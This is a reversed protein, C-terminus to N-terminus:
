SDRHGPTGYRQLLMPWVDATRYVYRAERKRPRPVPECCDTHTKRYRGLCTRIVSEPQHLREALEKVTALTPLPSSNGHGQSHEPIPTPAKTTGAAAKVDEAHSEALEAAARFYAIDKKWDALDYPVYGGHRLIMPLNTYGRHHLNASGVLPKKPLKAQLHLRCALDGVAEDREKFQQEQEDTLLDSGRLNSVLDLLDDIAKILAASM